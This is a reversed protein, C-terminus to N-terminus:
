PKIYKPSIAGEADLPMDQAWISPQCMINLLDKLCQEAQTNPVCCVIEDHVLLVIPYGLAKVKLAQDSIVIRALAQTVNESCSGGYIKRNTDYIYNETACDFRLRPYQLSLGNPLVIEQHKFTLCKYYHESLNLGPFMSHNQAEPSRSMLNLMDAGLFQWLDVIAKNTKRYTKVAKEALEYDLDLGYTKATAMFKNVGMGYGCNSVLRNSVTFRHRPGANLLDYVRTTRTKIRTIELEKTENKSSISCNRHHTKPHIRTAYIQINNGTLLPQGMIPNPNWRSFIYQITQQLETRQSFGLTPKRTHLPWQQQNPRDRNQTPNTARLKELDVRCSTTRFLISISNRSRRLKPITPRPKQYLSTTCRQVGRSIQAALYSYLSYGTTTRFLQCLIQNKRQIFERLKRTTNAWVPMPMTSIPQQTNKRIPQKTSALLRIPIRDARARTLRVMKSAAEWMQLKYQQSDHVFVEHDPTAWLGDHYIVERLGQDILGEHSVWEIGDWVMDCPLIQEIPVLGRPTLVQEGEAICGLVAVKGLTREEKTIDTTPKDYIASAMNKYPDGKNHFIRLLDDQGALWALVRAEISASDAIVLQHGPPAVILERFGDKKPLNQMNLGAGRGSWRGTHAGYYTLPVPLSGTLQQTTILSELRTEVITSKLSLRATLVNRLEDPASELFEQFAEDNKAFAFTEKGTRPSIKTPPELGHDQILQALQQNSNLQSSTLGTSQLHTTKQNKEKTLLENAAELNLQLKPETFLRITLDILDLEDDPYPLLKQYIQHSLWVDQKAYDNLDLREQLTLDEWHKGQTNLEGKPPLKYHKALNGLSHSKLPLKARAMSLSDLWYRPNFGYHWALIAGDFLTNHALIETDEPDLSSLFIELEKAPLFSHFQQDPILIAAGLVEFRLDYLYEIMKMKKLSYQQDFYTEFDIAVLM